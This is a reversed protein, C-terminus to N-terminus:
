ALIKVDSVLTLDFTSYIKQIDELTYKSETNILVERLQGITFRARYKKAPSGVAIVYPPIKHAVLGGAGVIAGEGIEAGSLVIVCAGLWVGDEIRIDKTCLDNRANSRLHGEVYSYDHNGGLIYVSPGVMVQNGIYLDCLENTSLYLNEGSFFSHGIEIHGKPSFAV